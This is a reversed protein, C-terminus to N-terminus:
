AGYSKHRRITEAAWKRLKHGRKLRYARKVDHQSYSPMWKVLQRTRRSMKTKRMTAM